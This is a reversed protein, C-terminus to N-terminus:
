PTTVGVGLGETDKADDVFSWEIQIGGQPDALVRLGLQKYLAHRKEPPWSQVMEPGFMMYEIFLSDRLAELAAIQEHGDRYGELKEEVATREDRIRELQADLEDPSM